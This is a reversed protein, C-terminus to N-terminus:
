RANQILNECAIQFESALQTSIIKLDAQLEGLDTDVRDFQPELSFTTDPNDVDSHTLVIRWRSALSGNNFIADITNALARVHVVSDSYFWVSPLKWLEGQANNHGECSWCPHFVGLKKLEFVLPAIQAEVPYEGAESSLHDPANECDRHCGETPKYHPCDDVCVPDTIPGLERARKIEDEVAKKRAAPAIRPEIHM